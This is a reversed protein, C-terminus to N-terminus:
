AGEGRARCDGCEGQTRAVHAIAAEARVIRGVNLAVLGALRAMQARRMQGRHRECGPVTISQTDTTTPATTAASASNTPM